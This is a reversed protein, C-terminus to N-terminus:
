PVKNKMRVIRGFERTLPDPFTTVNQLLWNCKTFSQGEQPSHDSPDSQPASFCCLLVFSWSVALPVFVQSFLCLGSWRLLFYPTWSLCRTGLNVVLLHFKMHSWPYGEALIFHPHSVSPLQKELRHIMKEMQNWNCWLCFFIECWYGGLFHLKRKWTNGYHKIHLFRKCLLWFIHQQQPFILM